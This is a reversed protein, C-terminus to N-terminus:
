PADPDNTQHVTRRIMKEIEIIAFILVGILAIFGLAALDLPAFQFLSAIPTVYVFVGQVLLMAAIGAWLWPNSWLPVSWAPRLLARASFLYLIQGFVIASVAATRAAEESEGRGLQWHFMATAGVCLLIGVFGTRMVMEHTLLPRSPDRPPRDMIDQEKAEFILPMGLLIASVMNIYLAQVPLIPLTAGIMMALLIVLGQGANTPLTWVIFKTLNAYVARGEEVAAEISAFNDNALIMDAADKAAETGTIGMAIGIDAQRLAPADNVGDGTMAVIQGRSQLAKVLRLKQEPTMRAFVGTQEAIEPLDSDAIKEMAAGTIHPISDTENANSDRNGAEIGLMGAITTATLAHDGTIMKVRVGAAQCRTVATKAEERPPDLMGQLGLFILPHEADADSHTESPDLMAHTLEHEQEPDNVRPIHVARMAFALVRLGRRALSAAARHVADQDLEIVHGDPSIAANCLALVRETSGKLYITANTGRSPAHNSPHAHLTAMYQRDSEFPIAALRPWRESLREPDIDAITEAHRSRDLTTALKTAAVILAGETPDGHIIWRQRDQDDPALLSADNCLAGCRLLEMLAVDREPDVPEHSPNTIEGRPEYGVGTFRYTTAETSGDNTAIWAAEVTMQNQTLTGTKDSCIVTTSGLAEVAPLNRIIARRQAMRSVGVALMITVAPPLGEPIASVALAVSAMFMETPTRGHFLGVIFAVAALALIAILLVRSFDSIKRTLPTAITDASAIMASIRGVETADATAIVLGEGTGRTILTGAYAMNRRDALVTAEDLADAHKSVPDSEGTLPSEDAHLDHRRLLRLDAPVKDGPELLVLDGVVLKSAALRVRRGGRRVTAETTMERALASIARAARSEQIYGIISNILVVAFIVTSDVYEGLFLTIITAALLIYILPAHFQALFRLWWPRGRQTTIINPGDRELRAAAEADSLGARPEVSLHDAAQAAPM